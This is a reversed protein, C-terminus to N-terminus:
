RHEKETFGPERLQTLLRLLAPTALQFHNATPRVAAVLYASLDALTAPGVLLHSIPARLAGEFNLRKPQFGGRSLWITWVTFRRSAAARQARAPAPGTMELVAAQCLLLLLPLALAVTRM